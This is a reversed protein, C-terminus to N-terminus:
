KLSKRAIYLSTGSLVGVMVLLLSFVASTYINSISTTGFGFLYNWGINATTAYYKSVPLGVVADSIMLIGMIINGAFLGYLAMKRMGKSGLAILLAIFVLVAYAILGLWHDYAATRMVNDYVILYVSSGLALVASGINIYRTSEGGILATVGLTVVFLAIVVGGAIYPADNTPHTVPPPPTSSTGKLVTVNLTIPASPDDGSATLTVTYLGPAVSLSPSITATGNYSPDGSSISFSVSLGSTSKTSISTGWTTGSVLKVCYFVQVSADQAVTVSTKNLSISSTGISYPEYSSSARGSNTTGQSGANVEGMVSLFGVLVVVTLLIVFGKHM